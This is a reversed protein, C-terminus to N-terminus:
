SKLYFFNKKLIESDLVLLVFNEKKDGFRPKVNETGSATIPSVNKAAPPHMGSPIDLTNLIRLPSLPTPTDFEKPAFENAMKIDSPIGHNILFM